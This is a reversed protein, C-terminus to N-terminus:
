QDLFAGLKDAKISFIKSSNESLVEAPDLGHEKLHALVQEVKAASLRLVGPYTTIMQQPSVGYHEFANCISVIAATSPLNPAAILRQCASQLPHDPSSWGLEVLFQARGRCIAARESPKSLKPAGAIAAQNLRQLWAADHQPNESMALWTEQGTVLYAAPEVTGYTELQPRTKASQKADAIAQGRVYRKAYPAAALQAKDPQRYRFYAHLARDGKDGHLNVARKANRIIWAQLTAVSPLKGNAQELPTGVLEAPDTVSFCYDPWSILEVMHNEPKQEALISFDVPELQRDEETGFEAAIRALTGLRQTSLNLVQPAATLADRVDTEIGLARAIRQMYEFKHRLVHAGAALLVFSSTIMAPADGTIDHLVGLVDYLGSSTRGRAMRAHAREYATHLPNGPEGFLLMDRFRERASEIREAEQPPTAMTLRGSGEAITTDLAVLWPHDIQAPDRAITKLMALHGAPDVHTFTHTLEQALPIEPTSM